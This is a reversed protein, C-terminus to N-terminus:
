VSGAGEFEEGRAGRQCWRAFYILFMNHVLSYPWRWYAYSVAIWSLATRDAKEAVATIRTAALGVHIWKWAEIKLSRRTYSNVWFYIRTCTFESFKTWLHKYRAYSLSASYESTQARYEHSKWRYFEYIMRCSAIISALVDSICNYVNWHLAWSQM